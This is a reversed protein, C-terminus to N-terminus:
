ELYVSGTEFSANELIGIYFGKSSLEEVTSLKKRHLLAPFHGANTFQFVGTEFNLIAYYATLTDKVDGIMKYMEQNVKKVIEHSASGKKSHTHFAIKAMTSILASSVGEASVDIMVIAMEKESIQFIDFNDKGSNKLSIDATKFSMEEFYPLMKPILTEQIKEAIQLDKKMQLNNIELESNAQNLAKTRKLVIEELNESYKRIQLIMKNFSRALVGIEDNGKVRVQKKFDMDKTIEQMESSLAEIPHLIKKHLFYFLLFISLVLSIFFIILTKLLITFNESDIYNKQKGIHINGIQINDKFIPLITEYYDHNAVTKWNEPSQNHTFLIKDTKSGIFSHTSHYLITQDISSIYVYSVNPNIRIIGDLFDAMGSFRELPFYQLNNDITKRVLLGTAYSERELAEKLKFNVHFINVVLTLGISFVLIGSIIVITKVKISKSIKFLLYKM